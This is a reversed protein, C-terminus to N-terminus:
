APIKRGAGAMVDSFVSLLVEEQAEWCLQDIAADRTAGLYQERNSLIVYLKDSFDKSNGHAFSEGLHHVAITQ